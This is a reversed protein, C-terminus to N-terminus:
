VDFLRCEVDNPNDDCYQLFKEHMNQGPKTKVEPIPLFFVDKSEKGKVPRTAPCFGDTCGQDDTM